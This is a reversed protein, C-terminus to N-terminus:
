SAPGDRPGFISGFEERSNVRPYPEEPIEVGLFRCLPEWGDGPTYVLLNEAPVENVVAANHQEFVSKVHERDDMRGGFVRDWIIRNTWESQKRAPEDDSQLGHQTMPYITAMVSEYWRDADRLSLIVKANPFSALLERWLNCAPWDVTAHFGDFLSEWDVSEGWHARSWVRAHDPRKIVEIMHYCSLYGLRELAFKLSLTGTRGFGAGIIELAM